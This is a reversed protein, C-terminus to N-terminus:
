EQILYNIKKIEISILHSLEEKLPEYIYPADFFTIRMTVYQSFKQKINLYSTIQQKTIQGDKVLDMIIGENKFPDNQINIMITPNTSNFDIKPIIHKEVMEKNLMKIYYNCEEYCNKMLIASIENKNKEKKIERQDLVNCTIVYLVVVAIVNLSGMYFDWNMNSTKLGLFSSPLNMYDLITIGIILISSITITKKLSIGGFDFIM